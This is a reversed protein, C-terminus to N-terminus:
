LRDYSRSRTWIRGAYCGVHRVRSDVGGADEEESLKVGTEAEADPVMSRFKYVTFM